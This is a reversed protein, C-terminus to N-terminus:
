WVLQQLDAWIKEFPYSVTALAVEVVEPYFFALM